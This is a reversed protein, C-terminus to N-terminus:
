RTQEMLRVVQGESLFHVGATAVHWGPMLGEAVVAEDDTLRAVKVPVKTAQRQTGEGTLRWVCPGNADDVFISEAPVIVEKSEGSTPPILIITAGMGPLITADEPRPMSFTVPYGGTTPDAEASAEKVKVTYSKNPIAAFRVESRGPRDGQHRAVISEPLDVRIDVSSIDQLRVVPQQPQVNEFREFFRKVILSEFPATLTADDRAQRAIELQAAAQDYANQAESLETATAAAQKILERTQELTWLTQKVMPELVSIQQDMPTTDLRALVDGKQINQGLILNSEKIRGGVQFALDVTKGPVVEGRFRRERTENAAATIASTVPRIVPEPPPPVPAFDVFIVAAVGAALATAGLVVGLWRNWQRM